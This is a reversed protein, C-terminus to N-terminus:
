EKSCRSDDSVRLQLWTMMGRDIHCLMDQLIEFQVLPIHMSLHSFQVGFIVSFFSVQSHIPVLAVAIGNM